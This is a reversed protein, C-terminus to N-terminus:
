SRQNIRGASCMEGESDNKKSRGGFECDSREGRQETGPCKEVALFLPLFPPLSPLLSPSPTQRMRPPSILVKEPRSWRQPWFQPQHKCLSAPGTQVFRRFSNLACSGSSLFFFFIGNNKTRHCRLAVDARSFTPCPVHKDKSQDRGMTCTFSRARKNVSSSFSACLLDRRSFFLTGNSGHCLEVVVM